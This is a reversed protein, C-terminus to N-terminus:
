KKRKDYIRGAELDFNGPKSWQVVKGDLFYIWYAEEVYDPGLQARWRQYEWAEVIGSEFQKAGVVNAPDGMSTNVEEKTNGIALRHLPIPDYNRGPVQDRIASTCGVSACILVTTLVLRMIAEM